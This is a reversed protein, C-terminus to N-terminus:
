EEDTYGFLAWDKIRFTSLVLKFVDAAPMCGAVAAPM